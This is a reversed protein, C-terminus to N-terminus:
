FNCHCLITLKIAITAGESFSIFVYGTLFWLIM